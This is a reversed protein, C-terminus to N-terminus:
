LKHLSPDRAADSGPAGPGPGRRARVLHTARVASALGTSWWTTWAGLDRASLGQEPLYLNGVYFLMPSGEDRCSVQAFDFEYNFRNVEPLLEACPTDVRDFAVFVLRGGAARESPPAYSVFLTARDPREADCVLQNKQIRCQFGQAALADISRAYVVATSASLVRPGDAGGCGALTVLASAAAARAPRRRRETM